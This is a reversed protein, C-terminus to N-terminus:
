TTAMMGVPKPRERLSESESRSCILWCARTVRQDQRGADHQRQREQQQGGRHQGPGVFGPPSRELLLGAAAVAAREVGPVAGAVVDGVAREIQHPLQAAGVVAGVPSGVGLPEVQPDAQGGRGQVAVAQDGAGPAGHELEVAVAGAVLGQQDEVARGIRQLEPAVASGGAAPIVFGLGRQQAPAIWQSLPQDAQGIGAAGESAARVAEEIQGEVAVGEAARQAQVDVVGDPQQHGGAGVGRRAQVEVQGGTTAVGGRAAGELVLGHRHHDSVVVVLVAERSIVLRARAGIRVVGVAVIVAQAVTFLQRHAGIGDAAVGVSVPERVAELGPHSLGQVVRLGQQTTELGVAIRVAGGIREELVAVAVAQAVSLLIAVGVAGHAGPLQVGAVGVVRGVVVAVADGLGELLAADALVAPKAIGVVAVAVADGVLGLAQCLAVAVAQGVEAVGVAVAVGPGVGDFALPVAVPIPAGVVEIQVRVVVIQGVGLLGIEVRVAVPQGLADIGPM